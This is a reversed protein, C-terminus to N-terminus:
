LTFGIAKKINTVADLFIENCRILINKIMQAKQADPETHSPDNWSINIIEWSRENLVQYRDIAASLSQRDINKIHEKCMQLFDLTRVHSEHLIAQQPYFGQLSGTRQLYDIYTCYGHSGYGMFKRFSEPTEKSCFEEKDWKGSMMLCYNHLANKCAQEVSLKDSHYLLLLEMDPKLWNDRTGMDYPNMNCNKEDFGEVFEHARITQGNSVIGTVFLFAANNSKDQILVPYGKQLQRTIIATIDEFPKGNTPVTTYDLGYVGFCDHIFEANYHSFGFALMSLGSQLIYEQDDNIQHNNANRRQQQGMFLQLAAMLAPFAMSRPWWAGTYPDVGQYPLLTHIYNKHHIAHEDPLLITDVSCDLVSALATLLATEPMAHGNEWKSVAQASVGMKEALREQTMDLERRLVAIKEGTKKADFM